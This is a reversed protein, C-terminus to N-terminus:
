VVSLLLMRRASVNNSIVTHLQKRGSKLVKNIHVDWALNSTFDVRLYTYKTVGNGNVWWRIGQLYWFLM